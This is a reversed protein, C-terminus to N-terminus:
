TSNGLKSSDIEDVFVVSSICENGRKEADQSSIIQSEKIKWSQALKVSLPEMIM